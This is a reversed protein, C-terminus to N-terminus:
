QGRELSSDDSRLPVYLLGGDGAVPTRHDHAGAWIDRPIGAPFAACSRTAYELRACSACTPSYVPLDSDPGDLRSTM